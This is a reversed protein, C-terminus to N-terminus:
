PGRGHAGALRVAEDDGDHATTAASAIPAIVAVGAAAQHDFAGALPPSGVVKLAGFALNENLAPLTTHVPPAVRAPVNPPGNRAVPQIFSGASSPAGNLGANVPHVVVLGNGGLAAVTVHAIDTLRTAIVIADEVTPSSSRTNVHVTWTGVTGDQRIEMWPTPGFWRAM